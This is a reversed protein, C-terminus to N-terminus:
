REKDSSLSARTYAVAVEPLMAVPVSVYDVGLDTFYGILRIDSGLNGTVGVRLRPRLTRGKSIALEILGGVGLRDLVSFPDYSVIQLLKYSELVETAGCNRDLAWTHQTLDNTGLSFFNSVKALKDATIVARPTEINAGFRVSLRQRCGRRTIEGSIARFRERYWRIEAADTVFPILVQLDCIRGSRSVVQLAEAIARLQVTALAQYVIGLRAGRVGFLSETFKRRGSLAEISSDLLRVVVPGKKWIRLIALLETRLLETLNREDGYKVPSRDVACKALLRLGKKAEGKLLFNETRWMGIGDAGLAHAKDADLCDDINARVQVKRYVSSAKIIKPLKTRNQKPFNLNGLSILADGGGAAVTIISKRPLSNLSKFQDESLRVVPIGLGKARLVTHTTTDGMLTIIAAASALIGFDLDACSRSFVIPNKAASSSGRQLGVLEGTAFGGALSTGECFIKRGFERRITSTSPEGLEIASKTLFALLEQKTLITKRM